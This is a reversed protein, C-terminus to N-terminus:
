KKLEELNNKNYDTIQEVARLRMILETISSSGSVYELYANEGQMMQMFALLKETELTLEEIKVESSKIEIEAAEIQRNAEEIELNAKYIADKKAQIEAETQAKENDQARKKAELNKLDQKLEGLTQSSANVILPSSVFSLVIILIFVLKIKYEKKNMM